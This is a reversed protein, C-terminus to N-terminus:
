STSVPASLSTVRRLSGRGYVRPATIRDIPLSAGDGTRRSPLMPAKAPIV